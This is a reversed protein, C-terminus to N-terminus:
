THFVVVIVWVKLYNVLSHTVANICRPHYSMNLGLYNGSSDKRGFRESDFTIPDLGIFIFRSFVM